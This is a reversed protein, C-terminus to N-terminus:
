KIQPRADDNKKITEIWVEFDMNSGVLATFICKKM